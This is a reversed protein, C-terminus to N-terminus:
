RKKDPVVGNGTRLYVNFIRKGFFYRYLDYYERCKVIGGYSLVRYMVGMEKLCYNLTRYGNKLYFRKRRVREEYNDAAPDMDEMNLTLKYDKYKEKIATLIKSGLGQGRTQEDVALYFIYALNGYAIVYALGAWQQDNYLSYFNVGDKKTNKVLIKFPFQECKPFASEYLEKVKKYDESKKSTVTAFKIAM